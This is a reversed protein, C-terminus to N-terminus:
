KTPYREQMVELRSGKGSLCCTWHPDQIFIHEEHRILGDRHPSVQVDGDGDGDDDGFLYKIDEYSNFHLETIQSATKNELTSQTKIGKGDFIEMFAM